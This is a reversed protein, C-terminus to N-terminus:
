AAPGGLVALREQPVVGPPQRAFAIRAPHDVATPAAPTHVDDCGSGLVDGAASNAGGAAKMLFDSQSM